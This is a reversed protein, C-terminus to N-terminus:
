RPLTKVRAVQWVAWDRAFRELVATAFEREDIGMEALGSTPIPTGETRVNFGAHVLVSVASRTAISVSMKRGQFYVDNGRRALDRVGHELLWEYAQAVLLHQLLIAYDLSDVFWEGLFHVMRPGAIPAGAAVDALDVMHDLTVDAPGMFAALVDGQVGLTRYAWHPALQRGDYTYEEACLRTTLSRM